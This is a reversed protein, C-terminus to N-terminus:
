RERTSSSRLALLAARQGGCAQCEDPNFDDDTPDLTEPPPPPVPFHWSSNRIGGSITEIVSGDASVRM